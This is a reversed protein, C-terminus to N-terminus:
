SPFRHLLAAISRPPVRKGNQHTTAAHRQEGFAFLLRDRQVGASIAEDVVLKASQHSLEEAVSLNSAPDHDSHIWRQIKKSRARTDFASGIQEVLQLLAVAVAQEDLLLIGASDAGRELADIGRGFPLQALSGLRHSFTTAYSQTEVRRGSGQM